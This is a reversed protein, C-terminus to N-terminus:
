ALSHIEAEMLVAARGAANSVSCSVGCGLVTRAVRRIYPEKEKAYKLLCKRCQLDWDDNKKMHMVRDSSNHGPPLM